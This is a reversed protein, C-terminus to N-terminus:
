LNEDDTFYEESFDARNKKMIYSLCRIATNRIHLKIDENKDLLEKISFWRFVTSEGDEGKLESTDTLAIYIFDLFEEGSNIGEHYVAVPLPVRVVRGVNFCDSSMDIISVDLGTEEKVERKAANHPLEDAEIHGGVPFWTHYKRHQHLLVKNENIIYVTATLSKNYKGM